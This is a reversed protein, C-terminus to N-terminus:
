RDSWEQPTFTQMALAHVPKNIMDALIKYIVQQRAVLRMGEFEASVIIVKFHSDTAGHAHGAHEHSENIVELHENPLQETIITEITTQVSMVNVM